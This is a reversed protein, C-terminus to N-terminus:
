DGCTSYWRSIPEIFITYSFSFLFFVDTRWDYGIISEANKQEIELEIQLAEMDERFKKADKKASALKNELELITEAQRKVVELRREMLEIKVSSEQITQDKIKVNRVLAQIEDHLQLWREKLKLTSVWHQNSRTSEQLGRHCGLSQILILFLWKEFPFSSSKSKLVSEHELVSPLLKGDEEILRSIADGVTEWPSVGPKLDKAITSTASQKVVSLITTLQFPSKSAHIEKGFNVLGLVPNSLAKM